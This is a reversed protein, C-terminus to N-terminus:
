VGLVMQLFRSVQQLVMRVVGAGVVTYAAGFGVGPATRRKGINPTSGGEQECQPKTSLSSVVRVRAPPTCETNLSGCLPVESM